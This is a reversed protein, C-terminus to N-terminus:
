GRHEEVVVLPVHNRSGYAVCPLHPQTITMNYQSKFYDVITVMKGAQGDSGRLLFKLDAAPQFTIGRITFV